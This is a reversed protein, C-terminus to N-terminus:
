FFAEMRFMDAYLQTNNIGKPTPCFNLGKNLLSKAADSLEMDSFNYILNISSELKKKKMRRYKSRPIWRRNKKKKKTNNRDSNSETSNNEKDYETADSEVNNNSDDSGEQTQIREELDITEDGLSIDSPVESSCSSFPASENGSPQFVSTMMRTLKEERSKSHKQKLSNSFIQFDTEFLNTETTNFHALFHSKADDLIKNQDNVQRKTKQYALALYATDTELVKRNWITQETENLGYPTRRDQFNQSYNPNTSM